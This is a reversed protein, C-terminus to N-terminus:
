SLTVVQAKKGVENHFHLMLLGQGGSASYAAANQQVDLMSGPQDSLLPFPLASSGTVVVGPAAPDVVLGHELSVEDGVIEAGVIDTPSPVAVSFSLVGYLIPYGPLVGPLADIAVPMFMSNSDFEATDVDGLVGNIAEIDVIEFTNLDLLESVFIDQGAYRTNFMVADPVFDLNTDIYIDFEQVSAETRWPGYTNIAFYLFDDDSTTGVYRLDANREDPFHICGETAGGSCNPLSPSTAQLEFGAVLSSVATKGAGQEVGQGKLRLQGHGSGDLTLSPPQSMFSAPRPASYVPVRLTPHGESSLLIRGSSDALFNRPLGAQTLSMTPDITKRLLTPDTVVFSVTFTKSSRADITLKNTSLQYTVGPVKTLSEYSLRYTVASLTKNSVKVTKTLTVPGTVAVPGFSVSVAGPDDVVYALVGNDLAADAQIRGSGVRNPAYRTGTHFDGTYLDQGATNMIDAKVEQATWDPHASTVLAALGAVMPTAMSTGSISLGDNGTGMGTSFVSTGVASVDPKANGAGRIGRSSGTNVKDDNAPILQQFANAATGNVVVPDALHARMIDGASKVVLVGPIVASGTIGASFIEANSAFVFGIAGAAAVNGSRTVSGCRRTADDDDWELFAVKGAVLAADAANLPDCGDLNDAETLAVLTGSLDPDNNWDYIVSRTAGYDGAIAGPSDVHVSDLQAYADVTNAVAIVKTADGPSGGVDYYDGGNGSAVVVSIGLDSAQNSLISDGDQPSGFDAGLSMNIVNVHDSPDGDGNPDSAAEIAQGVVDTSGECGFVKYAYLKAQPAVGPGIRLSSFPTTTDYPGTYTAGAGTVGYGAATGAVHSGHSNCDLPNPDPKPTPFYAPDTPDANYRDGAFDYGGVIKANPFLAPDAPRHDKDLAADYAAVTGPGAFNAHTYDVGTDIIAITSTAGLDGHATWAEPAHVLPVAYANSPRKAAIPYVAEIGSLRAIASANSADTHVAVGAMTAHTRYLETTGPAAAAIRGVLADQAVRIQTKQSAAAAAAAARGSPAALNYADATSAMDLQVLLAVRGSKPLSALSGARGPEPARAISGARSLQPHGGGAAASTGSVALAAVLAAATALATLGRRGIRAGSVHSM